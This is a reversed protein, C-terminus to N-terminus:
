HLYYKQHKNNVMKPVHEGNKNKNLRKKHNYSLNRGQKIEFAVQYKIKNVYIQIPPNSIKTGHKKIIQEFYNQIDSISYSTDPLHFEDNWTHSSIKFKNSNCISKISIWTYHISLNLSVINKNPDKSDIKDALYLICRHPWNTKSNETEM